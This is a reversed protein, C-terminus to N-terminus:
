ILRPRNASHGAGGAVLWGVTLRRDGPAVAFHISRGATTTPFHFYLCFM